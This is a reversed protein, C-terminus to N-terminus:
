FKWQFFNELNFQMRNAPVFKTAHLLQSYPAVKTLLGSKPSKEWYKIEFKSVKNRNEMWYFLNLKISIENIQHCIGANKQMIRDIIQVIRPMVNIVVSCCVFIPNININNADKHMLKTANWTAAIKQKTEILLALRLTSDFSWSAGSTIKVCYLRFM